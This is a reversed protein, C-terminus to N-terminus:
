TTQRFRHIETALVARRSTLAAVRRTGNVSVYAPSLVVAGLSNQSQDWHACNARALEGLQTGIDGRARGRTGNGLAVFAPRSSPRCRM